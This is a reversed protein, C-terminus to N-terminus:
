RSAFRVIRDVLGPAIAGVRHLLKSNADVLLTFANGDLGKMTADVVEEASYLRSLKYIPPVKALSRVMPTDGPPPCLVRM